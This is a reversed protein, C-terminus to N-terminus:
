SGKGETYDREKLRQTRENRVGRAKYELKGKRDGMKNRTKNQRIEEREM